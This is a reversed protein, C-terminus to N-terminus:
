FVDYCEPQRGSSYCHVCLLCVRADYECWIVLGENARRSGDRVLATSCVRSSHDATTAVITVVHEQMQQRIGNCDDGYCRQELIFSLSRSLTFGTHAIPPDTGWHMCRGFPIPVGEPPATPDPGAAQVDLGAGRGRRRHGELSSQGAAFGSLM